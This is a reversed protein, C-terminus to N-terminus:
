VTAFERAIGAPCDILIQDFDEYTNMTSIQDKVKNASPLGKLYWAAHGRMERIGVKEGKLDCLKRAHERALAFKELYSAEENRKGTKIYYQQEKESFVQIIYFLKLYM